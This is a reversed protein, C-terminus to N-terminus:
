PAAVWWGVVWGGCRCGRQLSWEPNGDSTYARVIFTYTRGDVLGSITHTTVNGVDVQDTYTGSSEGWEVIYGVVSSDPSADWALSLSGASAAGPALPVLVLLLFVSFGKLGSRTHGHGLGVSAHSHSM